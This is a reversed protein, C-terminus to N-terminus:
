KVWGCRESGVTGWCCVFCIVKKEYIEGRMMMKMEKLAGGGKGKYEGTGGIKRMMWM